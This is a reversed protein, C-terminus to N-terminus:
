RCWRRARRQRAASGESRRSSPPAARRRSRRRAPPSRQQLGLHGAQRRARLSAGPVLPSGHPGLSAPQRESRRHHLLAGSAREGDGLDKVRRKSITSAHRHGELQVSSIVAGRPVGGAGFVYGPNAVYAGKVPVNFHRAQQYSLTHVIRTASSSSVLEAHDLAPRHRAAERLRAQRRAGARHEVTKGVSAHRM